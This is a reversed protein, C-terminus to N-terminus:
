CAKLLHMTGVTRPVCWPVPLAAFNVDLETLSWTTHVSPDISAHCLHFHCLHFVDVLHETTDCAMLTLLQCMSAVPFNISFFLTSCFLFSVFRIAGEDYMLM